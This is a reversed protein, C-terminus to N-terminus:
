VVSRRPIAPRGGNAELWQRIITTYERQNAKGDLDLQIMMLLRNLRERNHLVHARGDIRAQLVDQKEELAGTAVPKTTKTENFSPRRRTHDIFDPGQNTMFRRFSAEAIDSTEDVLRNWAAEDRIAAAAFDEIKQKGSKAVAKNSSNSQFAMAGYLRGRLKELRHHECHFVEANPWAMDIAHNMPRGEDCVVRTPAGPLSQLFDSWAAAQTFDENFYAKVSQLQNGGEETASMAVLVMFHPHARDDDERKFFFPVHDLLLTGDGAMLKEYEDALEQRYHEFIVPAFVETWDGALQGHRIHDKGRSGQARGTLERIEKASDRYSKGSGLAKLTRAIDHASFWYERPTPPGEHSAFARECQDCDGSHTM